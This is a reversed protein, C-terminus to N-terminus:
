MDLFRYNKDILMLIEGVAIGANFGAIYNQADDVDKSFCLYRDTIPSVFIVPVHKPKKLNAAMSVIGHTTELSVPCDYYSSQNFENFANKDATPYNEYHVINVVGVSTFDKSASLYMLSAPANKQPIFKRAIREANESITSYLTNSLYNSYDAYPLVDLNSEPKPGEVARQDSMFFRNGIIVSGNVSADKSGALRKQIDPTSEATSVSIILDADDTGLYAPMYKMKAESNSKNVDPDMMNQVCRFVVDINDLYMKARPEKMPEKVDKIDKPDPLGTPRLFPHTIAKFFPDYEWAKNVVVTVKKKDSM